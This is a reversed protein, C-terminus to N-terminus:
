ADIRKDCFVTLRAIQKEEMEEKIAILVLGVGKKRLMNALFLIFKQIVEAEHFIHYTSISDFHVFTEESTKERLLKEIAMSLDTLNEPRVVIGKEDGFDVMSCDIFSIKEVDIDDRKLAERLLYSPKNVAVYVCNLGREGILYRLIGTNMRNRRDVGCSFLLVSGKSFDVLGKVVVSYDKYETMLVILQNAIGVHEIEDDRIRSLREVISKDAIKQLYDEYLDRVEVEVTLIEKLSSLLEETNREAM